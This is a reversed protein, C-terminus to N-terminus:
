GTSRARPTARKAPRAAGRPAATSRAGKASRSGSAGPTATTGVASACWAWLHDLPLPTGALHVDLVAMQAASMLTITLLGTIEDVDLDSRFAGTAAGAAVIERLLEIQPGLAGAFDDRRVALMRVHYTSLAQGGHAGSLQARGYFGEVYARLQDVPDGHVEVEHRLDETFARLLEEFLALLLEDKGAFHKYFSRLSLGSREVIDQVTFDIGGTEEMLSRAAELIQGSRSVARARATSLSRDVARQQWSTDPNPDDAKAM